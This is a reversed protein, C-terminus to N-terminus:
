RVGTGSIIIGDENPTPGLTDNIPTTSNEM